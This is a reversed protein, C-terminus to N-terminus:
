ARGQYRGRLRPPRSDEPEDGGELALERVARLFAVRADREIAVAPHPRKEGHKTTFTLGEATLVDRAQDKRDWAECAATLTRLQHDALAYDRVIAKWWARSPASLHRPPTPTSATTM